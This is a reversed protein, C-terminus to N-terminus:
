PLSFFAGLFDSKHTAANWPFLPIELINKLPKSILKKLQYCSANKWSVVSVPIQAFFVTFVTTYYNWIATQLRRETNHQCIKKLIGQGNRDFEQFLVACVKLYLGMCVVLLYVCCHVTWVPFMFMRGVRLICPFSAKKRGQGQAPQSQLRDRGAMSGPFKYDLILGRLFYSNMVPHCAVSHEAFKAKATHSWNTKM